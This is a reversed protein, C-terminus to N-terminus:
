DKRRRLWLRGVINAGVGLFAAILGVWLAHGWDIGAAPEGASAALAAQGLSLAWLFVITASATSGKM